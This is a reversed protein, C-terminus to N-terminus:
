IRAAWGVSNTKPQYDIEMSFPRSHRVELLLIVGQDIARVFEFLEVLPCELEFEGSFGKRSAVSKSGLKVYRVTTPWPDLVLEGGRIRLLEFRGFALENIAALFRRESQSLDHTWPARSQFKVTSENM